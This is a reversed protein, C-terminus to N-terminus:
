PTQKHLWEMKGRIAGLDVHAQNLTDTAAYYRDLASFAERDQKRELNRHVDDWAQQAKQRLEDILAIKAQFQEHLKQFEEHM